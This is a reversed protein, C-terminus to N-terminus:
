LSASTARRAQQLSELLRFANAPSRLLHGTEVLARYEELSLLVADGAESTIEIPTRDANVRAILGLLDKRAAAASIVM